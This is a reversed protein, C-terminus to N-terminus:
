AGSPPVCPPAARTRILSGRMGVGVTLGDPLSAVEPLSLPSDHETRLPERGSAANGLATGALLKARLWTANIALTECINEFSFLRSRDENAVWAIAERRASRARSGGAEDQAERIAHELVAGMLDHEPQRSRNPAFIANYDASVEVDPIRRGVQRYGGQDLKSLGDSSLRDSRSWTSRSLFPDRM